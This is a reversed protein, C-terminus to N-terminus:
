GFSRVLSGIVLEWGDVLVFLLLKFPLSIVVPPLMMMGMAMLVSAVVMDIILFPLYLMFGIQFATKLESVMFAPILVWTPVDRRTQPKAVRALELFLMLDKERTQKFMFERLPGEARSIAVDQSIKEAMYPGLSNTNISQWVPAMTFFTLFLSLGIILQNPPMNQTALAQRLFSLVVVIRTFSTMMILIAPALSLVTFLILIRLASVTETPSSGAKPMAINISPIGLANGAAFAHPGALLGALVVFPLVRKLSM